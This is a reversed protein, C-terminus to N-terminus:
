IALWLMMTLSYLWARYEHVQTCMQDNSIYELRTSSLHLHAAVCPKTFIIQASTPLCSTTKIILDTTYFSIMSAITHSETYQETTNQARSIQIDTPLLINNHTLIKYEAISCRSSMM